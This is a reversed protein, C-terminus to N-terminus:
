TENLKRCHLELWDQRGKEEVALIDYTDGDIVRMSEDIGSEYRITFTIDRVDVEQQGQYEEKLRSQRRDAWPTSKTSWTVEIDGHKSRTISREQITIKRDILGPRM